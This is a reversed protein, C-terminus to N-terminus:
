IKSVEASRAQTARRCILRLGALLAPGTVMLVYTAPEPVANADYTFTGFLAAAAGESHQEFSVSFTQLVDNPGLTIGTVTFNGTLTNSGRNQFTVDLGPHGPSAFAEREANPYFGPQLPIGLQNTGFDLTTFTNFPATPDGLAFHAETPMPPSGIFNGAQASFFLSNAPTYTIDFNGGQGIFDGPQSQLTLHAVQASLSHVLTM